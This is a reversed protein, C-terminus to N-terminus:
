TSIKWARTLEIDLILFDYNAGCRIHEILAEGRYFVDVDFTAKLVDTNEIIINEIEQCTLFEDDCIAVRYVVTGGIKPNEVESATRGTDTYTEKEFYRNKM